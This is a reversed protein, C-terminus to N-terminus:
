DLLGLKKLYATDGSPMIPASPPPHKVDQTNNCFYHSPPATPSPKTTSATTKTVDAVVSDFGEGKNEGMEANNVNTNNNNDVDHLSSPATPVVPRDLDYEQLDLVQFEQVLQRRRLLYVHRGVIRRFAIVVLVLGVFFGIIALIIGVVLLVIM